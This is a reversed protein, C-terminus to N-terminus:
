SQVLCILSIIAICWHTKASSKVVCLAKLLSAIRSGRSGSAKSFAGLFDQNSSSHLHTEHACNMSSSQVVHGTKTRLGVDRRGVQGKSESTKGEEEVTADREFIM